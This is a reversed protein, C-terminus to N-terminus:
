REKLKEQVFKNKLQDLENTEIFNHTTLNHITKCLISHHCELCLDYNVNKINRIKVDKNSGCIDCIRQIAM